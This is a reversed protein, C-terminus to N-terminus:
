VKIFIRRRYLPLMLLVWGLVYALSFVLSGLAPGVWSAFLNQYIWAYLTQRNGGSGVKVWLLTKTMLTSLVFVAIANTGLVLFPYAWARLRFTETVLVTAGLLLLAGGGAFLVFTSTWLQKNIPMQPHLLLGLAALAAGACMLASAKRVLTKNMLLWDGALTGILATAIAPMTSLLGEPDFGPKYLHGALLRSDVYAPLNGELTLVGPGYGPVPILKLALWYGALLALVLALRAKKGAVLYALSAFLYCLAIRQLVGPLRLGAMQFRPFLHLLLGLVFIIGSRALVKRMVEKKSGAAEIRASLSLALSVGVIFVFLPFVLDTLTWGHWSAHRLPPYVSKWSGPNNVLIMAAITLGRLVDLACLRKPNM